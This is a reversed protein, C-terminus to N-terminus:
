INHLGDWSKYHLRLRLTQFKKHIDNLETLEVFHKELNNTKSKPKKTLKQNLKNQSQNKGLHLNGIRTGNQDPYSWQDQLIVKEM